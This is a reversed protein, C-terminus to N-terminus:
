TNRESRRQELKVAKGTRKRLFHIKARRTKSSRTPRIAIVNPSHVPFIREVGENDVIRRVTFAPYSRELFKLKKQVQAILEQLQNPKKDGYGWVLTVNGHAIRSIVNEM